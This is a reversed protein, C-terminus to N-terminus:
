GDLYGLSQLRSKVEKENAKKFDDDLEDEIHYLVNDLVFDVYDQISDFKTNALHTDIRTIQEDSLTIISSSDSM